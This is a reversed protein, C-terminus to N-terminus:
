EWIHLLYLAKTIVNKSGRVKYYKRTKPNIICYGKNCNEYLWSDICKENICTADIDFDVFDANKDKLEKLDPYLTYKDGLVEKNANFENEIYEKNKLTHENQPRLWYIIYKNSLLMDAHNDNLDTMKFIDDPIKLESTSTPTYTDLINTEPDIKNEKLNIIYPPILCLLILGALIFWAKVWSRQANHFDAENKYEVEEWAWQNGRTGAWLCCIIAVIFGYPIFCLVPILLLTFKKYKIGWIWNFLVTGWNFHKSISYPAAEGMGSNNEHKEIHIRRPTNQTVTIKDKSAADNLFDELSTEDEPMDEHNHYINNNEDEPM